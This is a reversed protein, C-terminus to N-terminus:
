TLLIIAMAFLFGALFFAILILWLQPQRWYEWQVRLWERWRAQDIARDAM